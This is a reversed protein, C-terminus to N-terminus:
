NRWSRSGTEHGAPTFNGDRGSVCSGRIGLISSSSVPSSTANRRCSWRCLRSRKINTIAAPRPNKELKIIPRGTPKGGPFCTELEFLGFASTSAGRPASSSERGLSSSRKSSLSLFLENLLLEAALTAKSYIYKM